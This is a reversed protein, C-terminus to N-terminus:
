SSVVGIFFYNPRVIQCGMVALGAATKMGDVMGPHVLCCNPEIKYKDRYHAAAEAVRVTLDRDSADYWMMGTQLMIM